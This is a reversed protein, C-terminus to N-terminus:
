QNLMERLKEVESVPIQCTFNECLHATPKNEQMTVERIFQLNGALMEQNAGHDALLLALGPQYSEHVTRLLARTETAAPLGAIVV